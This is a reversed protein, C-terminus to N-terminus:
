FLLMAIWSWWRYVAASAAMSTVAIFGSRLVDRMDQRMMEWETDLEIVDLSELWPVYAQDAVVPMVVFFLVLFTLVALVTGVVDM